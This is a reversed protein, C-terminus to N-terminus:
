VSHMACPDAPLKSHAACIRTACGITLKCKQQYQEDSIYMMNCSKHNIFDRMGNYITVRHTTEQTNDLLARFDTIMADPHKGDCRNQPGMFKSKAHSQSSLPAALDASSPLVKCTATSNERSHALAQLILERINLCLIRRHLTIVQPLYNLNPNSTNWSDKLNMQHAQEYGEAVYQQLARYRCIQQVWHLTFSIKPFDM